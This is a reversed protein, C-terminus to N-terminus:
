CVQKLITKWAGSMWPTEQVSSLRSPSFSDVFDTCYYCSHKSVCCIINYRVIFEKCKSLCLEPPLFRDMTYLLLVDYGPINQFVVYAVTGHVSSEISTFVHSVRHHITTFIYPCRQPCQSSDRSYAGSEANTYLILLSVRSPVALGTEHFWIKLRSRPCLNKKRTM